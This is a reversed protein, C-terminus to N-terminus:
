LKQKSIWMALKTFAKSRHSIKNKVDEGLEAVTKNFGEPIFIPDFGFGKEGRPETSIKGNVLGNFTMIYQNYVCTVSAKFYARRNSKNRMLYLIGKNGITKYVYNSFPGPFGNLAEIFLGSDEVVLPKKLINYAYIAATKSITEIDENQIEIKAISTFYLEINWGSLVQKVEIYKHKNSTIFALKINGDEKRLM